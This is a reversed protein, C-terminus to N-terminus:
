YEYNNNTIFIKLEGKYFINDRHKYLTFLKERNEM